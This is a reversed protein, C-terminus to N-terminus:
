PEKWNVIDGMTAPMQLLWLTVHTRMEAWTTPVSAQQAKAIPLTWGNEMKCFSSIDLQFIFNDMSLSAISLTELLHSFNRSQRFRCRCKSSHRNVGNMEGVKNLIIPSTVSSYQDSLEAPSIPLATADKLLIVGHNNLTEVIESSNKELSFKRGDVTVVYPQILDM